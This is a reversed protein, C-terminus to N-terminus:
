RRMKNANLSKHKRNNLSRYKSLDRETMYRVVVHKVGKYSYVRQVLMCVYKREDVLVEDAENIICRVQEDINCVGKIISKLDMGVIGNELVLVAPEYEKLMEKYNKSNIDFLEDEKGEMASETFKLAVRDKKSWSNLGRNTDNNLKLLNVRRISKSNLVTGRFLREYVRKSYRDIIKVVGQAEIDLTWIELANVLEENEM